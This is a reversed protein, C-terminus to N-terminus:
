SGYISAYNDWGRSEWYGRYSDNDSVEIRNVWRAWKYGYKREAVVIFPFGMEPPLPLDNAKYALIIDWNQIMHLSLSTTYGDVCHFIVTNASDSVGGAKEILEKIRVGEWLVTAEWGEVCYLTILRQDSTMALVDDYSFEIPAKVLGDIRLEFSDMDVNQVGQISNDRPGIAPDLRMGQYDRVENTRYRALTAQSVVDITTEGSSVLRESTESSQCSTSLILCLILIAIIIPGASPVPQNGFRKM